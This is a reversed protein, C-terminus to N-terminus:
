GKWIVVGRQKLWNLQQGPSRRRTRLAVLAGRYADGLAYEYRTADVLVTVTMDVDNTGVIMLRM